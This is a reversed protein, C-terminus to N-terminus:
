KQNFEILRDIWNKFKDFPLNSKARNCDWCCPVLNEVLYGVNPDLRDIGNFNFIITNSIRKIVLAKYPKCGCYFCNLQILSIFKEQPLDFLINRSRAGTKYKNYLNNHARQEDTLLSIKSIRLKDRQCGCSKTAGSILRRSKALFIKDCICRCKWIVGGNNSRQDTKELVLLYGFRKGTLESYDEGCVKKGCSKSRATMLDSNRVLRQTLCKCSVLSRSNKVNAEIVTWSFFVDGTKIFYKSVM